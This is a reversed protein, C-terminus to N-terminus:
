PGQGRGAEPRMAPFLILERLSPADLLFRLLRDVGLGFGGAPPMGHELAELFDEDYPHTEDAGAARARQQAEFRARQEDPDTLESYMPAIEVGGMELDAHEVFGPKSRHPRALPSVDRPVDMAFTPEVITPEVVQEWIEWLVRGPSAGHEVQVGADLATRRLGDPDDLSVERGLARAVLDSVPVRAFPKSLDLDAGQFRVVPSGNVALAAARVLDEVLDMMVFYDAYALYAELMTFEPNHNRDIGENRFDRGIEYVRELGGVLLRKLYLEPAIRLYLDVDLARHRTVFPKAVAGGPVPQLIPTEVEVFGREDLGRRLAKLANARARVVRRTDLKTAFDLYRRRYRLEPDKLGRWKEPLPRLAKSLLTLEGVKVSLEGHKTTIVEGRAGVVDGLDLEKLLEFGNPDLAGRSLFLQIDGTADRLSAFWLNGHRRLLVIRGAVSVREDTEAGPELTDFREHLAAADADKDYRLAFPEVGLERLRALKERRAALVESLRGREEPGASAAPADPEDSM